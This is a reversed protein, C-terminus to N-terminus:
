IEYVYLIWPLLMHGPLSTDGTLLCFFVNSRVSPQKISEMNLYQRAEAFATGGYTKGDGGGIQAGM